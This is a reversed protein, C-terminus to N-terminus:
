CSDPEPMTHDMGDPKKTSDNAGASVNLVPIDVTVDGAKDFTLVLVIDEGEALPETLNMLMVHPGGPELVVTAGAPIEIGGEMKRMRSIDGEMIHHHVEAKRAIETPVSVALLRDARTGNNQLGMFVAGVRAAGASARAFPHIITMDGAKIEDAQSSGGFAVLVGLLAPFFKM